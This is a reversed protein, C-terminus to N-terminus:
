QGPLPPPNDIWLREWPYWLAHRYAAATQRQREELEMRHQFAEEPEYGGLIILEIRDSLPRFRESQSLCFARHSQWAPLVLCCLTVLTLLAGLSFQYWRRKPKANM